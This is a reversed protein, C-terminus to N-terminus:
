HVHTTAETDTSANPSPRPTADERKLTQLVETALDPLQRFDPLVISDRLDGRPQVFGFGNEPYKHAFLGQTPQPVEEHMRIIPAGVDADELMHAHCYWLGDQPLGQLLPDEESAADEGAQLCRKNREKDQM